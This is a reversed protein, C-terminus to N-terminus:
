LMNSSLSLGGRVIGKSHIYEVAQVLQVILSRATRAQFLRKYSGNKAASISCMALATVYCPHNGNPGHLVFSNQVSPIMARGSHELSSSHDLDNLIGIERVSSDATGVKVAVLQDSKHDRCLWTTSYAGYGLKHVVQYRFHLVDGIMIPHYGGPQYRELREVEEVPAYKFPLACSTSASTSKFARPSRPAFVCSRWCPYRRSSLLTQNISLQCRFSQQPTRLLNWSKTAPAMLPLFAPYIHSSIYTNTGRDLTITDM